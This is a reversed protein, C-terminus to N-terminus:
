DALLDDLYWDMHFQNSDELQKGMVGLWGGTWSPYASSGDLREVNEPMTRITYVPNQYDYERGLRRFYDGRLQFRREGRWALYVTDFQRDKLEAAFQLLVRTVDVQRNALSVDRVDFVISNGPIGFSYYAWVSVGENRPDTELVSSVHSHVRVFNTLVIIMVAGFVAGVGWVVRKNM